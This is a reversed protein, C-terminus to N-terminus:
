PIKAQLRSPLSSPLPHYGNVVRVLGEKMTACGFNMVLGLPLSLCKLYTRVQQKFVPITKEAAKVELVVLRNVLLEIRFAGDFFLGDVELDVTKEREVQFGRRELEKALLNKYVSELLGPGLRQHLRVGADVAAAAVREVERM